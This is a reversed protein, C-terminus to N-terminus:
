SLWISKRHCPLLGTNRLNQLNLISFKILGSYFLQDLDLNVKFLSCNLCVTNVPVNEHSGLLVPV